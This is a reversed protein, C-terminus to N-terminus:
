QYCKKEWTLRVRKCPSKIIKPSVCGSELGSSIKGGDRGAGDRGSSVSEARYAYESASAREVARDAISVPTSSNKDETDRSGFVNDEVPFGPNVLVSIM